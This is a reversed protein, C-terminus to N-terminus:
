TILRLVNAEAFAVHSCVASQEHTAALRQSRQNPLRGDAQNKHLWCPLAVVQTATNQVNLTYSTCGATAVIGSSMLSKVEKPFSPDGPTSESKQVM